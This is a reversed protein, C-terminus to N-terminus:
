VSIIDGTIDQGGHKMQTWGTVQTTKVGGFYSILVYVHFYYM